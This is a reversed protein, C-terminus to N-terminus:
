VGRNNHEHAVIDGRKTQDLIVYHMNYEQLLSAPALLSTYQWGGLGAALDERMATDSM